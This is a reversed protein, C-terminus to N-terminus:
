FRSRRTFPHWTDSPVVSSSVARPPAPIDCTPLHPNNPCTNMGHAAANDRRGLAFYITLVFRYHGHRRQAHNPPGHPLTLFTGLQPTHADIDTLEMILCTWVRSVGPTHTTCATSTPPHSLTPCTPHAPLHTHTHTHYPTHHHPPPLPFPLHLWSDATMFTFTVQWVSDRDETYGATHIFTWWPGCTQPLLLVPYVRVMVDTSGLILLLSHRSCGLGCFLALTAICRFYHKIIADLLNSQTTSLLPLAAPGARGL